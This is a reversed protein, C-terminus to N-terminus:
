PSGRLPPRNSRTWRVPMRSRSSSSWMGEEPRHCAGPAGGTVRPRSRSTPTRSDPAAGHASRAALARHAERPQERRDEEAADLQRAALPHRQAPRQDEDRVVAVAQDIRQEQECAQGPARAEEFVWTITDYGEVKARTEKSPAGFHSRVQEITSVGPTINGWEEASAVAPGALLGAAVLGVILARRMGALM